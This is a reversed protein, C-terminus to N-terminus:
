FPTPEYAEYSGVISLDLELGGGIAPSRAEVELREAYKWHRRMSWM